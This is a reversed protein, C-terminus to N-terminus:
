RNKRLRIVVYVIIILIAIVIFIGFDMGAKFIGSAIACSNVLLSLILTFLIIFRNIKRDRCLKHNENM